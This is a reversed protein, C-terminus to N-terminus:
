KALKRGLLLREVPALIMDRPSIPELVEEVSRSDSIEELLEILDYYRNGLGRLITLKQQVSAQSVFNLHFLLIGTVEVKDEDFLPLMVLNEAGNKGSTWIVRELRLITRKSGGAPRPQDYRSTKGICSGFREVVQIWHADGALVL